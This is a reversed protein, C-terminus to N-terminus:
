PSVSKNLKQTKKRAKAKKASSKFKRGIAKLDCIRTGLDPDDLDVETLDKILHSLFKNDNELDEEVSLDFPNVVTDVSKNKPQVTVKDVEIRKLSNFSVNIEKSSSGMYIGISKLKAVSNDV